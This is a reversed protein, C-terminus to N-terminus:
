CKTTLAIQLKGQNEVSTVSCSQDKILKEWIDRPPKRRARGKTPRTLNQVKKALIEEQTTHLNKVVVEDICSAALIMESPSSFDARIKDHAIM